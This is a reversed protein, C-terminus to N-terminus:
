LLINMLTLYNITLILILNLIRKKLIIQQIRKKKIKYNEINYLLKWIVFIKEFKQITNIDKLQSNKRFIKSLQKYVYKFLSKSFFYGFIKGLQELVEKNEDEKFDIKFYGEILVQLFLLHLDNLFDIFQILYAKDKKKIFQIILEYNEKSISKKKEKSDKNESYEKIISLIKEENVNKLSKAIKKEKKSEPKGKSKDEPSDEM